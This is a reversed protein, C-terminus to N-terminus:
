NLKLNRLLAFREDGGKDLSCGCSSNNLNEGCKPCLGRCNESCLVTYPLGLVLYEEVLGGCELDEGDYYALSLEDDESERARESHPKVILNLETKLEKEVDEACRSCVTKFAATAAGTVVLSSGEPELKLKVHPTGVFHYDPQVGGPEVSSNKSLRSNLAQPSLDFELERGEQPIDAIRIRM